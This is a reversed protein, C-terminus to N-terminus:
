SQTEWGMIGTDLDEDGDLDWIWVSVWGRELGGSWRRGVGGCGGKGGDLHM